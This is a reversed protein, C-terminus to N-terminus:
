ETAQPLTDGEPVAVVDAQPEYRFSVLLESPGLSFRFILKKEALTLEEVKTGDAISKKAILTLMDMYALADEKTPLDKDLFANVLANRDDAYISKILFPTLIDPCDGERLLMDPELTRLKVKRDTAFTQEWGEARMIAIKEATTQKKDSKAM